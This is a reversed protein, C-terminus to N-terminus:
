LCFLNLEFKVDGCFVVVPEVGVEGGGREEEEAEVEIRGLVGEVLVAKFADRDECM